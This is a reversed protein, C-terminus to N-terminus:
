QLDAEVEAYYDPGTRSGYYRVRQVIYVGSADITEPKKRKAKKPDAKAQITSPAEIKILRGPVLDPNLLSKAKVAKVKRGGKKTRNIIEPPQVLGTGPKLLVATPNNKTYSGEEIIELIGHQISWQMGFTKTARTLVDKVRGSYTRGRLIPVDALLPDITFPLGFAEAMDTLIYSALTGSTYSKSFTAKEFEKIGEGSYIETTWTPGSKTHNVEFTFGKFIMSINGGYGAHLEVAQHEEQFLNRTYESLQYVRVVATNPQKDLSSMVDFEIDLDTIITAKNDAYIILKVTRGFLRV